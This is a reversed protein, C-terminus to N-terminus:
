AYHADNDANDVKFLLTKLRDVSSWQGGLIWKDFKYDFRECDFPKNQVFLNNLGETHLAKLIAKEMQKHCCVKQQLHRGPMDSTEPTKRENPLGCSSPIEGPAILRQLLTSFEQALGDQPNAVAYTLVQVLKRVLEKSFTLGWFIPIKGTVFATPCLRSFVHSLRRKLLKKRRKRRSMTLSIPLIIFNMVGAEDALERTELTVKVDFALITAFEKKKELMVCAKMVDKKHVQGISIGSVHINVAPLFELLAELSGLTSAQVCVGEGSKDIRSLVSQMDELASEKIDEIDDHPGLVYLGTGAIVHELGYKKISSFLTNQATIKIGQAAKIEKLHLYTGQFLVLKGLAEVVTMITVEHGPGLQEKAFYFGIFPRSHPSLFANSISTIQSAKGGMIQLAELAFHPPFFLSPSLNSLSNLAMVAAVKSIIAVVKSQTAVLKVGVGLGVDGVVGGGLDGGNVEGGFGEGAGKEGGEVLEGVEGGERELFVEEGAGERREGIEGGEPLKVVRDALLASM